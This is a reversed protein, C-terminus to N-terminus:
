YDSQLKKYFSRECVSLDTALVEKIETHNKPQRSENSLNDSLGLLFQALYGSLKTTSSSSSLCNTAPVHIFTYPIDLKVLSHFLTNNCVFKGASGSIKMRRKAKNNLSCYAKEVPLTVGLYKEINPYILENNRSVGDNDAGYSKDLNTGRTEIKINRCGAEGLSIIMEPAVEM